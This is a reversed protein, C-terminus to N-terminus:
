IIRVNGDEIQEQLEESNRENYTWVQPDCESLNKLICRLHQLLDGLVFMFTYIHQLLQFGLGLFNAILQNTNFSDLVEYEIHVM